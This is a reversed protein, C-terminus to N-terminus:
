IITLLKVSLLSNLYKLTVSVERGTLPGKTYTYVFKDDPKIRPEKIKGKKTTHVEEAEKGKLVAEKGCSFRIKRPPTSLM